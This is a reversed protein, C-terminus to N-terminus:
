PELWKEALVWSGLWVQLFPTNSHKVVDWWIELWFISLFIKNKFFILIDVVHSLLINPRNKAM